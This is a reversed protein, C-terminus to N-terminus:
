FEEFAWLVKRLLTGLVNRLLEYVGSGLEGTPGDVTQKNNRIHNRLECYDSYFAICRMVVISLATM